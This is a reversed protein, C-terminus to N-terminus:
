VYDSRKLHTYLEGGAIYPMVFYLYTNDMAFYEMNVVFPYHVSQLVKKENLASQIRKKKVLREKKMLKAAYYKNSSKHKM